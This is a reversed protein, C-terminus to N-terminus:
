RLPSPIRSLILLVTIYICVAM